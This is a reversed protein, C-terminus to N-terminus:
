NCDTQSLVLGAGATTQCHLAPSRYAASVQAEAARTAARLADQQAQRQADAQMMQLAGSQVEYNAMEVTMQGADVQSYLAERHSLAMVLATNVDGRAAVMARQNMRRAAEVFTIKHVKAAAVDHDNAAQM